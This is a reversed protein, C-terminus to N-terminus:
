LHSTLSVPKQDNSARLDTRSQSQHSLKFIPISMQGNNLKRNCYQLIIYWYIYWFLNNGLVKVKQNLHQNTATNDLQHPMPQNKQYRVWPIIAPIHLNWYKKRVINAELWISTITCGWTCENDWRWKFIQYRGGIFLMIVHMNSM